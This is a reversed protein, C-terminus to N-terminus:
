PSARLAFDDCDASLQSLNQPFRGRSNEGNGIFAVFAHLTDVSTARIEEPALGEKPTFCDPALMWARLPKLCEGCADGFAVEGPPFARCSPCGLVFPM